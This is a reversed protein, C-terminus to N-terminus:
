SSMKIEIINQINSIDEDSWIYWNRFDKKPAPLLGENIWNHLTQRTINFNKEVMKTSFNM